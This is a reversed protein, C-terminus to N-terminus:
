EAVTIEMEEANGDADFGWAHWRVSEARLKARDFAFLPRRALDFEALRSPALEHVRRLADETDRAITEVDWGMGAASRYPDLYGLATTLLRSAGFQNGRSIHVFGAAVQILGKYLDRVPGREFQWIEEIWEHAEFFRGANFECCCRDFNGPVTVRKTVLQKKRRAPAPQTM